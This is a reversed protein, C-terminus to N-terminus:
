WELWSTHLALRNDDKVFIDSKMVSETWVTQSRRCINACRTAILYYFSKHLNHEVQRETKTWVIKEMEAFHFLTPSQETKYIYTCWECM